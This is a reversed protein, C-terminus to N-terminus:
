CMLRLTHGKLIKLPKLTQYTSKLDWIMIDNHQSTWTVLIGEEIQFTQIGIRGTLITKVCKGTDLNWINIKGQWSVSVLRGDILQMLFSIRDNSIIDPNYKIQGVCACSTIDWIKMLMSASSVSIVNGDKLQFLYIIRSDSKLLTVPESYFDWIKLNGNNHGTLLRGDLLQISSQISDHGGCQFSKFRGVPIEIICNASNM